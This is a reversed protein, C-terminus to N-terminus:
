IFVKLIDNLLINNYNKVILSCIDGKKLVNVDKNYKKLSIIKSKKIITKNNRIVKIFYKKKIKGKLIKCGSINKKNINYIKKILLIGKIKYKKKYQKKIIYKLYKHIEYIIYFNKIKVNINKINKKNFNIIIANTNKALKIDKMNIDEINYQIINIINKYKYNLLDVINIIADISSLLDAKIIINIYKKKKKFDMKKNKLFILNKIINNQKIKNNKIYQIHKKIYKIKKYIFFKEGFNYSNKLGIIKIPINTDINKINKKNLIIKKIKNYNYNCLIYDGIKLNGKKLIITQIYGINKKFYSNIIYGTSIIPNSIYTNVNKNIIIINNLLKKVGINKISSIKNLFYKGGYKKFLFNKNILYNTIYNINNKNNKIDIKTIVFIVKINYNKLYNIIEKTQDPIKNIDCSIFLLILDIIKLCQYRLNIFDKHGPTDIFIIKKKKYKLLFINNKQTINGIEKKTINKNSIQNIFTTKGHDVHGMIGVIINKNKYKPKYFKNNIYLSNNFENIFNVKYNYENCLLSIINNNLIQNINININLINCKEILYKLKINILLSLKKLNINNTIINIVNKNM